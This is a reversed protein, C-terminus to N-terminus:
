RYTLRSGHKFSNSFTQGIRKRSEPTDSLNRFAVNVLSHLLDALSQQLGIDGVVDGLIKHGLTSIVVNALTECSRLM